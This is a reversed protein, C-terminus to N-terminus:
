LRRRLRQRLCGRRQDCLFLVPVPKQKRVIKSVLNEIRDPPFARLLESGKCAYRRIKRVAHFFEAKGTMRKRRKRLRQLRFIHRPGPNVPRQEGRQEADPLPVRRSRRPRFRHATKSEPGARLTQDSGRGAPAAHHGHGPRLIHRAPVFGIYERGIQALRRPRFLATQRKM